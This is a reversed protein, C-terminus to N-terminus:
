LPYTRCPSGLVIVCPCNHNVMWCDGVMLFVRLCCTWTMSTWQESEIKMSPWSETRVPWSLCALCYVFFDAQQHLEEVKRDLGAYSMTHLLAFLWIPARADIRVCIDVTQCQDENIQDVVKPQLLILSQDPSDASKVIFDLLVSCTPEIEKSSQGRTCVAIM